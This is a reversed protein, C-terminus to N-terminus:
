YFYHSIVYMRKLNKNKKLLASAFRSKKKSAYFLSATPLKTPIVSSAKM